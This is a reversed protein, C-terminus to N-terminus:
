AEGLEEELIKQLARKTLPQQQQAARKDQEWFWRTFLPMSFFYKGRQDQEIAGLIGVLEKISEDFNAIVKRRSSDPLSALEHEVKQRMHELSVPSREKSLIALILQELGTVTDWLYRFHLEAANDLKIVQEVVKQVIDSSVENVREANVEEIIEHCLLQLFYPHGRTLEYIVRTAEDDFDLESNAIPERILRLADIEKLGSLTIFKFNNFFPSRFAHIDRYVGSTSAIIWTMWEMEQIISRLLGFFEENEFVVDFEDLLVVVRQDPELKQAIHELTGKIQVNVTYDRLSNYYGLVDRAKAESWGLCEGFKYLFSMFFMEATIPKSSDPASLSPNLLPAAEFVIRRTEQLDLYLPRMLDLQRALEHNVQFHQRADADGRLISQLMFLLSTKGTRRTGRVIVNQKGGVYLIDLLREMEIQHGYFFDSRRIPPGYIYPNNIRSFPKHGSPHHVRLRFEKQLQIGKKEETSGQFTLSLRLARDVRPGISYTVDKEQNPWLDGVRKIPSEDRLQFSASPAITVEVDHAAVLGINKLRFRVTVTKKLVVSENLLDCHIEASTRLTKIHANVGKLIRDYLFKLVATEHPLAFILRRSIELERVATESTRIREDVDWERWSARQEPELIKHLQRLAHYFLGSPSKLSLTPYISKLLSKSTLRVTEANDAILAQEFRRPLGGSALIDLMAEGVLTCHEAEERWLPPLPEELAGEHSEELFKNGLNVWLRIQEEIQDEELTACAYFTRQMQYFYLGPGVQLEILNDLLLLLNEYSSEIFQKYRGEPWNWPNSLGYIVCASTALEVAHQLSGLSGPEKRVSKQPSACDHSLTLSTRAITRRHGAKWLISSLSLWQNGAEEVSERQSSFSAVISGSVRRTHVDGPMEEISRYEIGSADIPRLSEPLRRFYYRGRGSELFRVLREDPVVAVLDDAEADILWYECALSYATRKWSEDGSKRVEKYCCHALQRLTERYASKSCDGYLLERLEIFSQAEPDLRKDFQAVEELAVVWSNPPLVTIDDLPSADIDDDEPLAGAYVLKASKELFDVMRPAPVVAVLNRIPWTSLFAPLAYKIIKGTLRQGWEPPKEQHSRTWLYLLFHALSLLTQRLEQIQGREQFLRHLPYFDPGKTMIDDRILNIATFGLVPLSQYREVNYHLLEEVHIAEISPNHLQPALNTYVLLLSDDRESTFIAIVNKLSMDGLSQKVRYLKEFSLKSVTM